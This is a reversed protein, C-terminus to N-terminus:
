LCSIVFLLYYQYYCQYFTSSIIDNLNDCLFIQLIIIIAFITNNMLLYLVLVNMNGNYYSQRGGRGCAFLVFYEKVVCYKNDQENRCNDSM